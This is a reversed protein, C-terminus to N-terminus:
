YVFQVFNPAFNQASKSNVFHPGRQPSDITRPGGFCFLAKRGKKSWHSVSWIKMVVTM